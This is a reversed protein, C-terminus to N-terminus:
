VCCCGYSKCSLAVKSM